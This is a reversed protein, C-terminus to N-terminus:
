GRAKALEEATCYEEPKGLRSKGDEERLAKAITGRETEIEGLTAEIAKIQKELARLRPQTEALIADREARLPASKARIAEAEVTALHFRKRMEKPTFRM